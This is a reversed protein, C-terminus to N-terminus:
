NSPPEYLPDLGAARVEDIEPLQIVLARREGAKAEVRFWQGCDMCTGLFQEPQNPNPQHLDLPSRCRRCLLRSLRRAEVRYSFVSVLASRLVTRSM